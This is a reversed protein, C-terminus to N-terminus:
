WRIVVCGCYFCEVSQETTFDEKEYRLVSSFYPILGKAWSSVSVVTFQKAIDRCNCIPQSSLKEWTALIKRNWDNFWRTINRWLHRCFENDKIISLSAFYELFLFKTNFSFFVGQAVNQARVGKRTGPAIHPTLNNYFFVLQYLCRVRVVTSLRSKWKIYLKLGWIIQKTRIFLHNPNVRKNLFIEKRAYDTLM